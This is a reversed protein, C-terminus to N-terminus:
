AVVVTGRMDAHFECFYEFTGPEAFTQSFSEGQDLRGSEIALEIETLSRAEPAAAQGPSALAVAVAVLAGPISFNAM